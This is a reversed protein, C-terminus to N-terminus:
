PVSLAFPVGGMAKQRRILPPAAMQHLWLRDAQEESMPEGAGLSRYRAPSDEESALDLGAADAGMIGGISRYVPADFDDDQLAVGAFQDETGFSAGLFREEFGAFGVPVADAEHPWSMPAGPLPSTMPMM